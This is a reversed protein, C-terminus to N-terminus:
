KALGASMDTSAFASKFQGMLGSLLDPTITLEDIRELKGAFEQAAIAMLVMPPIDAYVGIRAREMDARAQDVVRIRGAEAEAGIRTAEAEAVARSRANEDERAILDKRRAALEIKNSLENEAIAREKDVALARRAFTAEDAKQQLGEFTPVQLARALESSPAIDAISVGVLELGMATLAEDGEIGATIAEQLPAVGLELVDRVGRQRLHAMVSGRALTVLVSDIQDIPQGIYQGSSLDITFDIRECLREPDAVRWVIDGQVTLDQYDASQGKLLFPLQRDDLPVESLSGRQPWFWFALGRGSRVRRGHRFHQVHASADARLHRLFLFSRIQAM